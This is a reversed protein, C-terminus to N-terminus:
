TLTWKQTTAAADSKEEDLTDTIAILHCFHVETKEGLPLFTCGQGVHEGRSLKWESNFVYACVDLLFYVKLLTTDTTTTSTIPSFSIFPYNWDLANSSLLTKETKGRMENWTQRCDM